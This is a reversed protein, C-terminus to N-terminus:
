AILFMLITIVTSIGAGLAFSGFDVWKTSADQGPVEKVASAMMLRIGSCFLFIIIMAIVFGVTQIPDNGVSCMAIINCLATVWGGFYIEKTNM